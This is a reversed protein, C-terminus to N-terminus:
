AVYRAISPEITVYVTDHNGSIKNKCLTLGRMGDDHTKKGIGIILDATAPKDVKSNAMWDLQLKMKGEAMASAQTLEVMAFQHRAAMVRAERYLKNFRDVNSDINGQWKVNDLQDIIVVDPKHYGIIRDIDTISLDPNHFLIFNDKVKAWEKNYKGRDLDLQDRTAGCYSRITTLKVIAGPEENAIYLVKLGQELFGRCWNAAFTTKGAETSAFIQVVHGRYIGGVAEQLTDPLINFYHKTDTVNLLEDLGEVVVDTTDEEYNNYSTALEIVGSLKGGKGNFVDIAADAIEHAIAKEREAEVVLDAQENTINNSKAIENFILDQKDKMAGTLVTNNFYHNKLVDLDITEGLCHLDCLSSYIPVLLDPLIKRITDPDVTDRYEHDLLKKLLKILAKDM